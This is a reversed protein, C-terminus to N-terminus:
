ADDSLWELVHYHFKKCGKSLLQAEKLPQEAAKWKFSLRHLFDSDFVQDFEAVLVAESHEINLYRVSEISTSRYPQFMPYPLDLWELSRGSNNVFYVKMEYPDDPVLLSDIYLSPVKNSFRPLPKFFGQLRNAPVITM